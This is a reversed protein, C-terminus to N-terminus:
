STPARHRRVHGYTSEILDVFEEESVDERSTTGVAKKRRTLEDGVVEIGDKLEAVDLFQEEEASERSATVSENQRNKLGDEVEEIKEELDRILARRLM